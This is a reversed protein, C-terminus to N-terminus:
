PDFLTNRRVSTEVDLTLPLNQLARNRQIARQVESQIRVFVSPDSQPAATM